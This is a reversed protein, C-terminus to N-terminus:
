NLAEKITEVNAKMVDLYTVGKEFDEKTINHCANFLRKKAGTAECITDAMRENSLEIHFVVPIQDEKVKDILFAVTAASPETDTSCGPFAAYYSLVYEEVFYRLPFRDAFIVEKRKGSAIVKEFAADLDQLQKVYASTNEEYAAKNMEDAEIVAAEIAKVIKIANKPSTWVHEDYEVAEHDHDEEHEEQHAEEDQHEDAEDHEDVKAHEDEEDHEHQMGEVIEEEVLEVCELMKIVKMDKNDISELIGDVWADSDGGGYIFVDCNQIKIIDQPTPEYSHSEAAPPLLMSVEAKDGVIQRVFDYPAFVSTVINLRDSQPGSVEKNTCGFLLMTSILFISALATRKKNMEIGGFKIHDERQKFVMM